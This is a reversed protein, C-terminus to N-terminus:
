NYIDDNIPNNIDKKPSKIAILYIAKKSNKNFIYNNSDFRNTNGM